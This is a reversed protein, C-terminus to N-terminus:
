AANRMAKPSKDLDSIVSTPLEIRNVTQWQQQRTSKAIPESGLQEELVL